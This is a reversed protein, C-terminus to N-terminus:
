KMVLTQVPIVVPRAWRRPLFGHGVLWDDLGLVLEALRRADDQDIEDADIHETALEIMENLNANPDM